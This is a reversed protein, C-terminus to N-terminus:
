IHYCCHESLLVDLVITWLILLQDAAFEEGPVLFLLIILWLVAYLFQYFVHM